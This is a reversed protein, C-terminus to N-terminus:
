YSNLALLISLLSSVFYRNQLTKPSTVWVSHWNGSDRLHGGLRKGGPGLGSPCVQDGKERTCCQCITLELVSVETDSVVVLDPRDTTSSINPPITAPPNTNALKGPLDAFLRQGDELLGEISRVLQNLVSDHRWTLRGQDLAAPCCSLIHNVPLFMFSM